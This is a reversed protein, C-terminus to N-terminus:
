LAYLILLLTTKDSEEFVCINHSLVCKIQQHQSPLSLFNDGKRTSTFLLLHLIIKFRIPLRCTKIDSSAGFISRYPLPCALKRPPNLSTSGL